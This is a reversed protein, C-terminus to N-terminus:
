LYKQISPLEPDEVSIIKAYRTARAIDGMQVAAKFAQINALQQDSSYIPPLNTEVYVIAERFRGLVRLCAANHAIDIIHNVPKLLM